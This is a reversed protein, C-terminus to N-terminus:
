RIPARAAVWVSVRAAGARRLTRTCELLTAGTTMVDDVLAVHRGALAQGARRDCRFAGRTNRKRGAADLGSQARTRRVRLLLSSSVPLALAHGVHRALLDAQNFTRGLHRLRHLPVPVLLEPPELATARIAAVLECGLMHGCAFDRSFKFRCVLRDVPFRYALAAEVRDWPPPKRLCQGCLTEQDSGIPLACTACVNGPRPLDARCAACLNGRGGPLGCMVCHRPLLADLCRGAVGHLASGFTFRSM